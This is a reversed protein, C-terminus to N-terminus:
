STLDRWGQKAVLYDYLPAIMYSNPTSGMSFEVAAKKNERDEFSVSGDKMGIELREYPVLVPEGKFVLMRTPTLLVGDKRFEAAGIAVSGGEQIRAVLRTLLSMGAHEMIIDLIEDFMKGKSSGYFLDSFNIVHGDAPTTAGLMLTYATSTRIGNTSSRVIQTTITEVADTALTKDGYTISQPTIVLSKKMIGFPLTNIQFRREGSTAPANQETTTPNTTTPDSNQM